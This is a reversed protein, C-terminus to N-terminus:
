KKTEQYYYTESLHILVEELDEQEEQNYNKLQYDILFILQKLSTCSQYDISYKNLVNIDYYPILFGHNSDYSLYKTYDTKENM